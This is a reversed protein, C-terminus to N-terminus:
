LLILASENRIRLGEGEGIDRKAFVGDQKPLDPVSGLLVDILIRASKSM